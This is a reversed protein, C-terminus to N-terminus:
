IGRALCNRRGLLRPLAGAGVPFQLKISRVSRFDARVENGWEGGEDMQITEPRGRVAIRSFAPSDRAESPDKSRVRALLSYKSYVDVVGPATADGSLRLDM